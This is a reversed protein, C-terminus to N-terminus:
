RDFFDYFIFNDSAFFHAFKIHEINAHICASFPVFLVSLGGKGKESYKWQGAHSAKKEQKEDIIMQAM